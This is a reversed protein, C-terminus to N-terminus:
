GVARLKQQLAEVETKRQPDSPPWLFQRYGDLMPLVVMAVFETYQEGSAARRLASPIKDLGLSHAPEWSERVFSECVQLEALVGVMEAALAQYRRVLELGRDSAARGAEVQARLAARREEAEAEALKKALAAHAVDIAELDDEAKLIESRIAARDKETGELLVAERRARADALRAQAAPLETETLKALEERIETSTAAESKMLSKIKEFM